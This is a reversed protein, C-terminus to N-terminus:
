DQQNFFIGKHSSSRSPRASCLSWVISSLNDLNYQVDEFSNVPVDTSLFVSFTFNAIASVSQAFPEASRLLPACWFLIFVLQFWECRPCRSLEASVPYAQIHKSRCVVHIEKSPQCDVIGQFSVSRVNKRIRRFESSKFEQRTAQKSRLIFLEGKLDVVTQNIDEDSMKRVSVLEEERKAMDVVVPAVASRVRVQSVSASLARAGPAFFPSASVSVRAMSAGNGSVSVSAVGACLAAARTVDAVYAM